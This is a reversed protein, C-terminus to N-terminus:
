IARTRGASRITGFANEVVMRYPYTTGPLLGAVVVGVPISFRSEVSAPMAPISTGYADTEGIEFGVTSPEGHVRVTGHLTADVGTIGTALSTSIM